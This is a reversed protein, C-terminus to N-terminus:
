GQEELSMIKGVRRTHRGGEFPEALFADVMEVIADFENFRSGVCIINADNHGRSLKATDVNYVTAARVGRIKNAAIAVGIGTGCLLVGIGARDDAVAQGVKRASDPYDMSSDDPPGFDTVEHHEGLRDRLRQKVDFGAHDSAIAIKM